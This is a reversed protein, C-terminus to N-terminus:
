AAEMGTGLRALAREIRESRVEADTKRDRQEQVVAPPARDVFSPNALKAEFRAIDKRLTEMEKALRTREAAVDITGALPMLAVTGAAELEAAQGDQGDDVAFSEIRALRRMAEGHVALARDAAPTTTRFRIGVMAAQPVRLESRVSRVENVFAMLWEIEGKAELDTSRPADPWPTLALLRESEQRLSWLEETVFPMLPHLMRLTVAFAAAASGRTEAQAAADDGGLLPKALELYWDCYTHWLFQYAVAAAEDFRYATIATAVQQAAEAAAAEIWRNLSLVPAPRAASAAQGAGQLELFRAANWLKTVFNRYGKVRDEALRIDRGQAAMAVLTFRVADTGYRDMLELPDIVNGESKSMKRGKADRVLAHIYVERFPVQKQFHLGMMMMRAVWFFIIDFGTM